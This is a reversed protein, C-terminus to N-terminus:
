YYKKRIIDIRQILFILFPIIVVFLCWFEGLNKNFYKKSIFLFFFSLILTITSYIDHNNLLTNILLVVFYLTWNENSWSWSIHKNILGSCKQFFDCQM